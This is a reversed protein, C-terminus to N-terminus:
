DKQIVLIVLMAVSLALIVGLIFWLEAGGAWVKGRVMATQQRWFRIAGAIVVVLSGSIFATALPVGGV